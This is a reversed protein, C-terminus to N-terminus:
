EVGLIETVVAEEPEDLDVIGLESCRPGVVDGIAVVPDPVQEVLRAVEGVDLATQWNSIQPRNVTAAAQAPENTRRTFGLIWRPRVSERGILRARILVVRIAIDSCHIAQRQFPVDLIAEHRCLVFLHARNVTVIVLTSAYGLRDMPLLGARRLTILGRGQIRR